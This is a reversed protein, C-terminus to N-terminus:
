DLRRRPPNLASRLGRSTEGQYSGGRMVEYTPLKSRPDYGLVDLLM